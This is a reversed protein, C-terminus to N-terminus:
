RTGDAKWSVRYPNHMLKEINKMDMSVPQSGPFGKRFFIKVTLSIQVSPLLSLSFIFVFGKWGCVSKLKKQLDSLAPQDKFQTVGEVGEMFKGDKVKGSPGKSGNGESNKETENTEEEGDDDYEVFVFLYM